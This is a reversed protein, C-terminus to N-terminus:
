IRGSRGVLRASLIRVASVEGAGSGHGRGHSCRINCRGDKACTRHHLRVHTRTIGARDARAKFTHRWAHMPSLEDDTIGLKRVWEALRRRIIEAPHWKPNLPDSSSRDEIPNYFLPGKGRSHVFELFSQEIVHVHIPVTRAKGTKITGAAPTLKMVYIQGRREIDQGRLQTIEGPRAGSYACLWPVWRQAGQFTTKPALSMVSSSALSHDRCSTVVSRPARVTLSTHILAARVTKPHASRSRNIPLLGKLSKFTGCGRRTSCRSVLANMGASHVVIRRSLEAIM